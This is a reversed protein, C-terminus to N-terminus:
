GNMMKWQKQLCLNRLTRGPNVAIPEGVALMFDYDLYSDTYATINERSIGMREILEEVYRAKDKGEMQRTVVGVTQDELISYETAAWEDVAFRKAVGQVLFDPSSSLIITYDGRRQAGMLKSFVNPNLMKNFNGDLFSSVHEEIRVISRGSFFRHCARKHLSKVSIIGLKHCCYYFLLSLM